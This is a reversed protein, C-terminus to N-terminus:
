ARAPWGSGTPKRGRITSGPVATPITSGSTRLGSHDVGVWGDQVLPGLGCTSNLDQVLAERVYGFKTDFVVSSGLLHIWGGGINRPDNTFSQGNKLTTPIDQPNAMTIMRFWLNDQDSLRHDVKVTFTDADSM